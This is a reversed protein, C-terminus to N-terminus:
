FIILSSCENLLCYSSLESLLVNWIASSENAFINTAREDNANFQVGIWADAGDIWEKGCM